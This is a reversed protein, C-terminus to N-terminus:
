YERSVAENIAKRREEKAAEYHSESGPIALYKYDAEEEEELFRQLQASTEQVKLRKSRREVQKTGKASKSSSMVGRTPEPCSKLSAAM